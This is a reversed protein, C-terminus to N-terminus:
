PKRLAGVCVALDIPTSVGIVGALLGRASDGLEGALKLVVNGGLSYGVLFLPAETRGRIQRLIALTDGTLGAHYMTRCDEDTGGCSRMNTRHVAFGHELALQSMSRIYGAHSSGELGHVMVIEGAPPQKPQHSHVLIRVGPETEVRHETVPFQELDLRRRVFNGLITLLHPNRIVPRFHEL